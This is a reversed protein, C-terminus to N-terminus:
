ALFSCLFAFIALSVIHRSSRTAEGEKQGTASAQGNFGSAGTSAGSTHITTAPFLATTTSRGSNGYILETAGAALSITTGDITITGGPTLTETGIVFTTGSGSMATYTETGITLRPPNM